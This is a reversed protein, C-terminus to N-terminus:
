ICHQRGPARYVWMSCLDPLHLVLHFRLHVILLWTLMYKKCSPNNSPSRVTGINFSSYGAGIGDTYVVDGDHQTFAWSFCGIGVLSCLMTGFRLTLLSLWKKDRRPLAEVSWTPYTQASPM